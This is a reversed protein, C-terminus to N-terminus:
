LRLGGITDRWNGYDDFLDDDDLEDPMAREVRYLAIRMQEPDPNAADNLENCRKSIDGASGPEGVPGDPGIIQWQTPTTVQPM